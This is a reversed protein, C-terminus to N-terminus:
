DRVLYGKTDITDYVSTEEASVTEYEESIINVIKFLFFLTVLVSAVIVLVKILRSNLTM